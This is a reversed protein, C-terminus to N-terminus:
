TLQGLGLFGAYFPILEYPIWAIFVDFLSPIGYQYYVSSPLNAKFLYILNM